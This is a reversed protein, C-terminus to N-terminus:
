LTILGQEQLEGLILEIELVTKNTTQALDAVTRQADVLFYVLRQRRTLYLSSIEREPEVKQPIRHEIGPLSERQPAPYPEVAAPQWTREPAPPLMSPPSYAPLTATVNRGPLFINTPPRPAGPIFAFYINRWSLLRNFADLGTVHGVRAYIPQGTLLYLEGEELFGSQATEISLLGSRQQARAVELVNGVSVAATNRGQTM